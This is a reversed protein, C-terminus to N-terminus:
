RKPFLKLPYNDVRVSIGLGSEQTPILFALDEPVIERFWKEVEQWKEPKMSSGHVQNVLRAVADRLVSFFAIRHGACDLDVKPPLTIASHLTGDKKETLFGCIWAQSPVYQSGEVFGYADKPAEGEYQKDMVYITISRM